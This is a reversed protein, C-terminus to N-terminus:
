TRPIATLSRALSCLSPPLVIHLVVVKVVVPANAAAASGTIHAAQNGPNAERESDTQKM